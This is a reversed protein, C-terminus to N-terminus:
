ARGGPKGPPRPILMPTREQYDRYAQGFEHLLKREEVLAGVVLYLSLSLNLALLNVTMLPIFWIFLLGATYLPHRMWRYLGRIVLTQAEVPQPEVIQRLGFFSWLGTQWMGVLLGLVALGQIATTLLLWPPRIVYLTRDPLLATLALIPLFSLVAFANYALRYLRDALPGFWRGVLTKARLSALLSHILGYFLVALFILLPSIITM